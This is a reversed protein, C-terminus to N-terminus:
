VAQETVLADPIAVQVKFDVFASVFINDMAVGTALASPETIKVAPAATAALEVMVPVPGITALPAAVEVTVTVNFSILLLKTEPVTGVKVAVL